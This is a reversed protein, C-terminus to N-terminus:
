LDERAIFLSLESFKWNEFNGCFRCKARFFNLGRFGASWPLRWSSKFNQHLGSTQFVRSATLTFVQEFFKFDELILNRWTSPKMHEFVEFAKMFSIYFALNEFQSHLPALSVWREALWTGLYFFWNSFAAIKSLKRLIKMNIIQWESGSM